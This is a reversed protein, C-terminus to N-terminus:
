KKKNKLSKKSENNAHKKHIFVMGAISALLLPVGFLLYTKVTSSIVEIILPSGIRTAAEVAAATDGVEIFFSEPMFMLVGIGLLVPVTFVFVVIKSLSRLAQLRDKNLLEILGAFILVAVFLWVYLIKFLSHGDHVAKFTEQLEEDNEDPFTQIVFVAEENKPDAMEDYIKDIEDELESLNPSECRTQGNREECVELKSAYDGLIDLVSKKVQKTNKTLDITLQPPEHPKTNLWEYVQDIVSKLQPSLLGEGVPEVLAEGIEAKDKETLELNFEGDDNFDAIQLANGVFLNVTDASELWSKVKDGNLVTSNLVFALTFLSLSISFLISFFYIGFKRM